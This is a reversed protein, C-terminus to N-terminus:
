KREGIETEAMKDTFRKCWAVRREKSHKRVADMYFPMSAFIIVVGLILWSNHINIVVIGTGVFLFAYALALSRKVSM